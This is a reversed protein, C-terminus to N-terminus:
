ASLRSGEPKPQPGKAAALPRRASGKGEADAPRRRAMWDDFSQAYRGIEDHVTLGYVSAHGRGTSREYCHILWM